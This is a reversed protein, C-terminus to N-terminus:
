RAAVSLNLGVIPNYLSLSVLESLMFSKKSLLKTTLVITALRRCKKSFRYGPPRKREVQREPLMFQILGRNGSTPRLCTATKM